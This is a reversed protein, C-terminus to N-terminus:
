AIGDFDWARFFSSRLERLFEALYYTSLRKCCLRSKPLFKLGHYAMTLFVFLFLLITVLNVEKSCLQDSRLYEALFASQLVCQLARSARCLSIMRGLEPVLLGARDRPAPACVM